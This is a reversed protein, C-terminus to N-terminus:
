GNRPEKILLEVSHESDADASSPYLLADVNDLVHTNTQRSQEYLALYSRERETKPPNLMAVRSFQEDIMGALEDRLRRLRPFFQDFTSAYAARLDRLQSAELDKANAAAVAMGEAEKALALQEGLRKETELNMAANAKAAKLLAQAEAKAAEAAVHADKIAQREIAMKKAVKRPLRERKDLFREHGFQASVNVWYDDQWESMARAYAANARKFGGTPEEARKAIWGPHVDRVDFYQSMTPTAYFHVHFYEEDEHRVVCLLEAGLSVMKKSLYDVTLREWKEYNEIEAPNEKVKAAPIPYSAVGTFVVHTDKRNTRGRTRPHRALCEDRRRTVEAVLNEPSCGFVPVPAMPAAIHACADPSRILEDVLESLSWRKEQKQDPKKFKNEAKSRVLPATDVHFFQAPM